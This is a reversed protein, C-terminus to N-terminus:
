TGAYVEYITKWEIEHFVNEVRKYLDQDIITRGPVGEALLVLRASYIREDKSKTNDLSINAQKNLLEIRAKSLMIYAESEEWNSLEGSFALWDPTNAQLTLLVSHKKYPGELQDIRKLVNTAVSLAVSSFKNFYMKTYKDNLNLYNHMIENLIQLHDLESLAWTDRDLCTNTLKRWAIDFNNMDVFQKELKEFIDLTMEEKAIQILRLSELNRQSLWEIINIADFRDRFFEVWKTIAKLTILAKIPNDSSSISFYDIAWHINEPIKSLLELLPTRIDKLYPNDRTHKYQWCDSREIEGSKCTPCDDHKELIIDLVPDWDKAFESLPIDPYKKSKVFISSYISTPVGELFIKQIISLRSKLNALYVNYDQISELDLFCKINTLFFADSLLLPVNRTETIRKQAKLFKEWQSMLKGHNQPIFKDMNYKNLITGSVIIIKILYCSFNRLYNQSINKKSKRIFVM